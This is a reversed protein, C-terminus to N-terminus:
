GRSGRRAAVMMGLKEISDADFTRQVKGEIGWVYRWGGVNNRSKALAVQGVLNWEGGLEMKKGMVGDNYWGLFRNLALWAPAIVLKNSNGVMGDAQIYEVQELAMGHWIVRLPHNKSILWPMEKAWWGLSLHEYAMKVLKGLKKEQIEPFVVRVMEKLVERSPMAMELRTGLAGARLAFINRIATEDGSGGRSAVLRKEGELLDAVGLNYGSTLIGCGVGM